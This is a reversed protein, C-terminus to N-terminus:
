GCIESFYQIEIAAVFLYLGATQKGHLEVCASIESIDGINLIFYDSNHKGWFTKM